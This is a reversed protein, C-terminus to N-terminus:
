IYTLTFLKVQEYWKQAETDSCTMVIVDGAEPNYDLCGEQMM